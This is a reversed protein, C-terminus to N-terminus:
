IGSSNGNEESNSSDKDNGESDQDNLQFHDTENEQHSDEEGEMIFTAIFVRIKMSELAIHNNDYGYLIYKEKLDREL